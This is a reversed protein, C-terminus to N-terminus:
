ELIFKVLNEFYCEFDQHGTSDTSSPCLPDLEHWNSQGKESLPILRGPDLEIGGRLANQQACRTLSTYPKSDLQSISNLSPTCNKLPSENQKLQPSSESSHRLTSTLSPSAVISDLTTGNSHITNSLISNSLVRNSHVINPHVTNPHVRNPQVRNPQVTNSHVTNSHVTNSHVTNSHVTNSHATNTHKNGHHRATVCSQIQPSTTTSCLDKFSTESASHLSPLHSFSYATSMTRDTKPTEHQHGSWSPTLTYTDPYSPTLLSVDHSYDPFTYHHNAGEHGYREPMMRNMNDSSGKWHHHHAPYHIDSLSEKTTLSEITSITSDESLVYEKSNHPCMLPDSAGHLSNTGHTLFGNDHCCRTLDHSSSSASNLSTQSLSPFFSNLTNMTTHPMASPKVLVPFGEHNHPTVGVTVSSCCTSMSSFPPPPPPSVNGCVSFSERMSVSGSGRSGSGCLSSGSECVSSKSRHLSPIYRHLLTTDNTLLGNVTCTTQSGNCTTSTNGLSGNRSSSNTVVSATMSTSRSCNAYECRPSVSDSRLNTISKGNGIKTIVDCDSKSSDNGSPATKYYFKDYDSTSDFSPTFSSLNKELSNLSPVTRSRAVNEETSSLCVSEASSSYDCRDPSISSRTTQFRYSHCGKSSSFRKQEQNCQQKGGTTNRTSSNQQTLLSDVLYKLLVNYSAQPSPAEQSSPTGSVGTTGGEECENVMSPQSCELGTHTDGSSENCNENVLKQSLLSNDKVQSLTSATATLVKFANISQSISSASNGSQMATSLTPTLENHAVCVCM